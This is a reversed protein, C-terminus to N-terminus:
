LAANNGEVSPREGLKRELEAILARLADVQAELHRIRDDAACRDVTREIEIALDTMAGAGAGDGRRRPRPQLWNSGRPVAGDARWVTTSRHAGADVEARRRRPRASRAALRRM